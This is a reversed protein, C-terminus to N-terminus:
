IQNNWLMLYFLFLLISSYKIVAKVLNTIKTINSNAINSLEVLLAPRGGRVELMADQAECSNCGILLLFLYSYRLYM